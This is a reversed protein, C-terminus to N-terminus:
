RKDYRGNVRAPQKTRQSVRAGQQGRGTRGERRLELEHTPHMSRWWPLTSVSAKEESPISRADAPDSRCIM